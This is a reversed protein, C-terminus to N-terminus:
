RACEGFLGLQPGDDIPRPATEITRSALERPPALEITFLPTVQELWDPGNLYEDRGARRVRQYHESAKRTLILAGAVAALDTKLGDATSAESAWQDTEVSTKILKLHVLLMTYARGTFDCGNAHRAHVDVLWVGWRDLCAMRYLDLSMYKRFCSPPWDPNLLARRETAWARMQSLIYVQNADLHDLRPMQRM